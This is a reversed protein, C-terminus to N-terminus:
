KARFRCMSRTTKIFMQNPATTLCYIIKQLLRTQLIDVIRDTTKTNKM